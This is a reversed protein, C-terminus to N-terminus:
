YMGAGSVPEVPVLLVTAWWGGYADERWLHPADEEKHSYTRVGQEHYERLPDEAHDAVILEGVNCDGIEACNEETVYGLVMGQSVYSPQQQDEADESCGVVYIHVQDGVKLM